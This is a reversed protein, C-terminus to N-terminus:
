ERREVGLQALRSAVDAGATAPKVERDVYLIKGDAGIYITNRACHKEGGALVGYARAV